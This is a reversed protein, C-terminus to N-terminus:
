LVRPAPVCPPSARSGGKPDIGRGEVTSARLGCPLSARVVRPIALSPTCPLTHIVCLPSLPAPRVSSPHYKIETPYRPMADTRRKFHLRLNSGTRGASAPCPRLCSM